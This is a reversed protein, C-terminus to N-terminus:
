EKARKKIAKLRADMEAAKDHLDLGRYTKSLMELVEPHEPMDSLLQELTTRAEPWKRSNVM